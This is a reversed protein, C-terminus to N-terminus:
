AGRPRVSIPRGIPRRAVEKPYGAFVFTAVSGVAPEAPLRSRVSTELCCRAVSCGAPWQKPSRASHIQVGESGRSDHPCQVLVLPVLLQPLRFVLRRLALHFISIRLAGLRGVSSAPLARAVAAGRVMQTDGCSHIEPQSTGEPVPACRWWRRGISGGLHAFRVRTSVLARM